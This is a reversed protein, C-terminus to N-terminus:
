LPIWVRRKSAHLTGRMARRTSCPDLAAVQPATLITVCSTSVDASSLRDTPACGAGDNVYALEGLKVHPFPVIELM